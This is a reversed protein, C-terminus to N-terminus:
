VSNKLKKIGDIQQPTMAKPLLGINRAKKVEERLKMQMRKCVGTEHRDYIRGIPSIFQSILLVDRYTFTDLGQWCLQCGPKKFINGDEEYIGTIKSKIMEEPDNTEIPERKFIQPMGRKENKDIKWRKQSLNPRLLSLKTLSQITWVRYM